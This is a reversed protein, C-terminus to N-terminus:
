IEKIDLYILPEWLFKIYLTSIFFLVFIGTYVLVELILNHPSGIDYM